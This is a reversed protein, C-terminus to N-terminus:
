PIPKVAIVSDLHCHNFCSPFNIERGHVLRLQHTTGPLCNQEPPEEPVWTKETKHEATARIQLTLVPECCRTRDMKACPFAPLSTLAEDTSVVSPLDLNCSWRGAM